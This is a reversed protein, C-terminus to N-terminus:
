QGLSTQMDAPFCKTTEGACSDGKRFRVISICHVMPPKLIEILM